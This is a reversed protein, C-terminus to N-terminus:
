IRFMQSPLVTAISLTDEDPAMFEVVYAEGGPHVHVITGVSGPSM